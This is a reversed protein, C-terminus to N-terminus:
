QENAENDMGALIREFRPILDPISVTAAKWVETLDVGRYGHILVDRMGAITRWRVDPNAQRLSLSLQKTAEGMIEFQRIVASQRMVDARFAELDVGEVFQGILRAADLVDQLYSGDPHPM